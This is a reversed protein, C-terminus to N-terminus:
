LIQSSIAKFVSIIKFEFDYQSIIKILFNIFHKGDQNRLFDLQGQTVIM